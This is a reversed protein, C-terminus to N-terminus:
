PSPFKLTPGVYQTVSDKFGSQLADDLKYNTYPIPGVTGGTDQSETKSIGDFQNGSASMACSPSKTLCSDSGYYPKKSDSFFNNQITAQAQNAVQISYYEVSQWVNNFIHAVSTDTVKPSCSLTNDFYNHHVTVSSSESITSASNHKGGCAYNNAGVFHNWSYTINTGSMSDIDGDSIGSFACHDVWVHNAGDITIADGAEILAPNVDAFNLNQIIVNSTESTLYLNAGRITSANDLGLLTKNSKILVTRENRQMRQIPTSATYSSNSGKLASCDTGSLPRYTKRTTDGTTSDCALVCAKTCGPTGDPVSTCDPVIPKACEITKGAEIVAVAPNDSSQLASELQDCDQIILVPQTGGGTTGGTGSTAFGIPTGQASM